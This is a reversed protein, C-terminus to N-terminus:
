KTKIRRTYRWIIIVAVIISSALAVIQLQISSPMNSDNLYNPILKLGPAILSSNDFPFHSFYTPNIMCVYIMGFPIIEQSGNFYIKNIKIEYNCASKEKSIKVVGDIDVRYNRYIGGNKLFIGYHITENLDIVFVKDYDFTSNRTVITLISTDISVNNEVGYSIYIWDKDHKVSLTCNIVDIQMKYMITDSWEDKEMIGDMTIKHSLRYATFPNPSADAIASSSFISILLANAIFLTLLSSKLQWYKDDM